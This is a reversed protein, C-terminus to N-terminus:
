QILLSTMKKHHVLPHHYRALLAWFAFQNLVHVGRREGGSPTPVRELFIGLDRLLLALYSKICSRCLTIASSKRLLLVKEFM